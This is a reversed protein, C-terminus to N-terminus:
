LCSSASIGELDRVWMAGKQKLGVPTTTWLVEAVKEGYRSADAIRLIVGTRYKNKDYAGRVLDGIKM